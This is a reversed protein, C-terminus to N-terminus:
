RKRLKFIEFDLKRHSKDSRQIIKDNQQQKLEMEIINLRKIEIKQEATACGTIVVSLFIWFYLTKLNKM